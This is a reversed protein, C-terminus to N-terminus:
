ILNEVALESFTELMDNKPMMAAMKACDFIWRLQKRGTSPALRRAIVLCAHHASVASFLITTALGQKQRRLTPLPWAAVPGGDTREVALPKVGTARLNPFWVRGGDSM